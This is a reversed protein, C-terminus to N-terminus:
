SLLQELSAGLQETSYPKLLFQGGPVFRDAIDARLPTGSTYLVRLHPQLTIAQSAVALGGFPLASLRMDVFLADIKETASIHAIAQAFDCAILTTHGLDEMTWEAAQRIFIEDEVILVLAM